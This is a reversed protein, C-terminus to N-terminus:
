TLSRALVRQLVRLFRYKAYIYSIKVGYIGGTFHCRLVYCKFFAFPFEILMRPINHLGSKRNESHFYFRTRESAKENLTQLDPFSYHLIINKFECIRERDQPLVADQTAHLPYHLVKHNYLRIYNHFDAFPRPNKHHPYIGVTKIRAGDFRHPLDSKLFSLIEEKVEETLFEDADINLVWDNKCLSEAAFKQQGFGDFERFQFVAGHSEAIAQTQDTSGSDLVIIEDAISSVRTLCEDLIAQENKTIIFVSLPLM